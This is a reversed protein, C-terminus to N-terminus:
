FSDQFFRLLSFVRSSARYFPAARVPYGSYLDYSDITRSDQLWIGETTSIIPLFVKWRDVANRRFTM